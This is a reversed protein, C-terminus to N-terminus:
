KITKLNNINYHNKNKTTMQIDIDICCSFLFLFFAGKINQYSLVTVKLQCVSKTNSLQEKKKKLKKRQFCFNENKERKKYTTFPLQM